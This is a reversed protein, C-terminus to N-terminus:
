KMNISISADTKTISHKQQCTKYVILACCSLMLVLILGTVLGIVFGYIWPSYQELSSNSVSIIVFMSYVSDNDNM